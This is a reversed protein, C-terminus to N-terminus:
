SRVVWVIAGVIAGVIMLLLVATLGYYIAATVMTWIDALTDIM